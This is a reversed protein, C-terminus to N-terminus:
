IKNCPEYMIYTVTSKETIQQASDRFKVLLKIWVEDGPVGAEAFAKRLAEELEQSSKDQHKQM